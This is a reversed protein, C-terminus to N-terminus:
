WDPTQSAQLGKEHNWEEKPVERTRADAKAVAEAMRRKQDETMGFEVDDESTIAVDGAYPDSFTENSVVVPMMGRTVLFTHMGRVLQLIERISVSQEEKANKVTAFFKPGRKSGARYTKFDDICQFNMRNRAAYCVGCVFVMVQQHLGNPQRPIVVPVLPFWDDSAKSSEDKGCIGCSCGELELVPHESETIRKSPNSVGFPM